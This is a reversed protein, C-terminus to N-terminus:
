INCIVLKYEPCGKPNKMKAATVKKVKERPIIGAGFYTRQLTICALKNFTNQEKIELTKGNAGNHIRSLISPSKM